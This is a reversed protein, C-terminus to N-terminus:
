LVEKSLYAIAIGDGSPLFVTQFDTDNKLTEIFSRLNAVITRHKKLDTSYDLVRGGFYINDAWLCGGLRLSTKIYPLYKLYQGKPGDLFIFDYKENNVKLFNLADVNHLETRGGFGASFINSKATEFRVTDKEVSTLFCEPLVSCIKIASYGIATGIELINLPKVATLFELLLDEAEGKIIPVWNEDAYQRLDELLKTNDKMINEETKISLYNRELIFKM